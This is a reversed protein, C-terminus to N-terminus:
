LQLAQRAWNKLFKAVLSALVAVLCGFRVMVTLYVLFHSDLILHITM